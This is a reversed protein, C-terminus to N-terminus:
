CPELDSYVVAYLFLTRNRPKRMCRILGRSRSGHLKENPQVPIAWKRFTGRQADFLSGFESGLAKSQVM